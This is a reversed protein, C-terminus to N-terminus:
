AGLTEMAVVLTVRGVKWVQGDALLTDRESEKTAVTIVGEAARFVVRDGLTLEAPLEIADSRSGGASAETLVMVHAIGVGYPDVRAFRAWAPLVGPPVSAHEFRFRVHPGIGVEDGSKLAVGPAVSTVARGGVSTGTRSGLDVIWAQGGRWEVRAHHRSVTLSRQENAADKPVCRVIAHGTRGLVLRSSAVLQVPGVDVDTVVEARSFVGIPEEPRSVTFERAMVAFGGVAEIAARMADASEFRDDPRKALARRVIAEFARVDEAVRAPFPEVEHFHHQAFFERIGPGAFPPRGLLLEHFMAGVAYLDSRADLAVGVWQEPSMYDPTGMVVGQATRLTVSGELQADLVKALGFDTLRAAEGAPDDSVPELLVNEPKVDRHLVGKRHAEALAALVQAVWRAAARPPAAGNKIAADLGRGLVAETVMYRTGDALKGVDLVRVIFPSELASAARAERSFRPGLTPDSEPSVRLVGLAVDRRTLVDRALYVRKVSGAGLLREVRYRGAILTGSAIDEM